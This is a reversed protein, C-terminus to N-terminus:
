ALVVKAGGSSNTIDITVAGDKRRLVFDAAGDGARMNRVTIEGAREPLYPSNLTVTRSAGDIEIGLLSGLLYPMSGSAWAQPSCAVPYLIPARGARRRFGCFLEPLRGQSMNLAADLLGNFVSEIKEPKGYRAFGAGIMANDHPWISGNHYSMPNYRAESTAITRIGWGSFFSADLMQKIVRSARDASAIGSSLAHGANSSRVDVRNKRGDLALAYMGIDPSWFKEEFKRQLEIAEAKLRRSSADDGLMSAMRAAVIKAEYVYGQVEVLALPGEALSGDKNFVSDHSDKWGQNSLGDETERAYEVFGDGDPDGPGNIWELAKLVAPWIERLFDKDDTAAVYAGALVVFLPTSDVSGYYLGFPIERLAAMEGNRMEHLIKGPQADAAADHESAQFRALRRLVGRAISSDLWLVQLATILADRGFTTSYWPTGAYPYPGDATETILLRLDAMARKLVHNLDPRSVEISTAQLEARRLHLHADHLGKIYSCPPSLRDGEALATVYVRRSQKAPIHLRFFASTERLSLPEPDIHVSTKRVIRDLGTYSFSVSDSSDVTRRVTGRKERRMGRVEFIDLFDCDFFVSVPLYLDINSHNTLVLRQRLSADRVYTTRFVHVVDKHLWLAGNSYVDTNTLDSCLQLDKRDLTSGLLLPPRRAILLELRSLYRTDKFFFGDAHNGFAGIDGHTDVVVFADDHKLTEHARPSSDAEAHIHEPEHEPPHDLQQSPPVAM